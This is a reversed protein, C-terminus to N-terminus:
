LLATLECAQKFCNKYAFVQTENRLQADQKGLSPQTSFHRSKNPIEPDSSKKQLVERTPVSRLIAKKLSHHSSTKLKKSSLNTSSYHNELPVNRRPTRNSDSKKSTRVLTKMGTYNFINRSSLLNLQKPTFNLKIALLDSSGVPNHSTLHKYKDFAM